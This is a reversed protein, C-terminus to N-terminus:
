FFTTIKTYKSMDPLMLDLISASPVFSIDTSILEKERSAQSSVAFPNLKNNEDYACAIGDMMKMVGSSPNIKINGINKCYLLQSLRPKLDTGWSIFLNNIVAGALTNRAIHEHWNARSVVENNLILLNDIVTQKNHSLSGDSYDQEGTVFYTLNEIHIEDCDYFCNSGMNDNIKLESLNIKLKPCNFFNKSGIERLSKPISVEKLNMFYCITEQPLIALNKPLIIKELSRSLLKLGWLNKVKVKELNIEKISNTWTGNYNFYFDKFAEETFAQKNMKICLFDELTGDYYGTAGGIFHLGSLEKITNKFIIVEAPIVLAHGIIGNDPNLILKKIKNKGAWSYGILLGDNNLNDVNIELEDYEITNKPDNTLKGKNILDVIKKDKLIDIKFARKFYWLLWLWLTCMEQVKPDESLELIFGYIDGAVLKAVYTPDKTIYNSFEQAYDEATM